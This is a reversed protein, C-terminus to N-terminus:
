GLPSTVTVCRSFSRGRTDSLCTLRRIERLHPPSAILHSLGGRAPTTIRPYWRCVVICLCAAQVTHICFCPSSRPCVANVNRITGHLSSTPSSLGVSIERFAKCWVVSHGSFVDVKKNKVYSKWFNVSKLSKQYTLDQSFKVDIVQVNAWRM